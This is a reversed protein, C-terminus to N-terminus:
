FLSHLRFGVFIFHSCIMILQVKYKTQM